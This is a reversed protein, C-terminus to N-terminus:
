RTVKTIWDMALWVLKSASLAAISAARAPSCPRPNATTASSTRVNALRVCSDVSSTCCIIWRRFSPAPEATFPGEPTESVAVGIRFLGGGDKAPFYLYYRGERCAADPAWMQKEAWPVDRVHLAMGCDTAEGDPSDMRLVHYDEMGFHDGDDNEPIGADFDHSPYIYIRGEFVHASPDATYIHTVLPPSIAREALHALEAESPLTEEQTATDNM